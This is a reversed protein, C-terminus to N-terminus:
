RTETRYGRVTSSGITGLGEKYALFQDMFEHVSMSYSVADGKRKLELILANRAREAQRFPKGAVTHFTRVIEGM